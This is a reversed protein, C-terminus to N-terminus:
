ACEFPKGSSAEELQREEKEQALCPAFKIREQAIERQLYVLQEWCTMNLTSTIEPLSVFDHLMMLSLDRAEFDLKGTDTTVIVKELLGHLMLKDPHIPKSPWDGEMRCMLVSLYAGLLTYENRCQIRQKISEIEQRLSTSGDSSSFETSDNRILLKLYARHYASLDKMAEFYALMAQPSSPQNASNSVLGDLLPLFKHQFESLTKAVSQIFDIYALQKIIPQAKIKAEVIRQQLKEFFQADEQIYPVRAATDDRKLYDYFYQCCTMVTWDDLQNIESLGLLQYIARCLASQARALELSGYGDKIRLLRYFLAGLLICSRLNEDKKAAENAGGVPLTPGQLLHTLDIIAQIQGLRNTPSLGASSALTGFLRLGQSVYSQTQSIEGVATTYKAPLSMLEEVLEALGMIKQREKKSFLIFLAALEYFDNRLHKSKEYLTAFDPQLYPPPM